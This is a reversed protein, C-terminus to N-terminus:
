QIWLYSSFYIRFKMQFVLTVSPRGHIETMAYQVILPM